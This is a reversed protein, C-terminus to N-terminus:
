ELYGLARLREVADDEVHGGSQASRPEVRELRAELIRRLGAAVDALEADRNTTEQPDLVLDYLRARRSPLHMTLKYGGRVVSRWVQWSSFVSREPARAGGIVRRLSAGDFGYQSADIGLYDLLTPVVDVNGAAAPVVGGGEVGPIRMILPTRIQTDRVGQCHKVSRRELFDEGHDSLFVVLTRDRLGREDLGRLLADFQGDLYAIEEDYLDVLHEIDRDRLNLPAGPQELQRAIPNPNGNAIFRFGSYPRVFRRSHEAPPQYPDHPDIYHLYLFVPREDSAAEDLLAFARENVCRAAAQECREDFIEFGGGFGGFFNNSSRTKRVVVSASVAITRYGHAGLIEAITPISPPIGIMLEIQNQFAVPDRSTLLSNVSPFTCPAQARTNEFLVSERAFRDISPSTDRPYGYVGLHDARLTDALVIVVNWSSAEPAPGGDSCGLAAVVLAFAGELGRWIGGPGSQCFM